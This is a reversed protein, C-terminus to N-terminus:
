LWTFGLMALMGSGLNVVLTTSDKQNMDAMIGLMVPRVVVFSVRRTFRGCWCFWGHMGSGLLSSRSSVARIAYDGAFGCMGSDLDVVLAAVLEEVRFPRCALSCLAFHMTVLLGLSSASLLM